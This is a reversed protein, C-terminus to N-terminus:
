MLYIVRVCMFLESWLRLRPPVSINILVLLLIAAGLCPALFSNNLIQRSHSIQYLWFAFSFLLPSCLGHALIMILGCTYGLETGRLFGLNVVGMHVVSSYAILVKIDGQRLCVMACIVSGLLSLSFYICIVQNLKIIPLFLLLGYSGLKLLIGALFM